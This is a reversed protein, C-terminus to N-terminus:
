PERYYFTGFVYDREQMNIHCNICNSKALSNNSSGQLIKNGKADYQIYEWDGANTDYGKAQKVMITLTLAKIPLGKEMTYNEKLIITGEPYTKFALETKENKNEEGEDDDDEDDLYYQKLYTIYNNLYVKDAQNMYVVVGQKWHLGSFELNTVREWNKRYDKFLSQAKEEINNKKIIFPTKENPDWIGRNHRNKFTKESAISQFSILILLLLTIKM